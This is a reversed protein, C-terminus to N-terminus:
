SVEASHRSRRWFIELAAPCIALSALERASASHQSQCHLASPPPLNYKRRPRASRSGRGLGDESVRHHQRLRDSRPIVGGVPTPRAGIRCRRLDLRRGHLCLLVWSGRGTRYPTARTGVSDARPPRFRHLTELRAIDEGLRLRTARTADRSLVILVDVDSVDRLFAGKAASGFLIVSTVPVQGQTCM